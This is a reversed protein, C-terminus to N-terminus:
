NSQLFNVNIKQCKTKKAVVEFTCGAWRVKDGIWLWLVLYSFVKEWFCIWFRVIHNFVNLHVHWSIRKKKLKFNQVFTFFFYSFFINPRKKKSFFIMLNAFNFIMKQSFNFIMNPCKRILKPKTVFNLIIL